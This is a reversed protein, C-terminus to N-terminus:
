KDGHHWGAPTNTGQAQAARVGRPLLTRLVLCSLYRCTLIARGPIHRYICGALRDVRYDVAQDHASVHCKDFQLAQADGLRFKLLERLLRAGTARKSLSAYTSRGIRNHPSIACPARRCLIRLSARSAKAAAAARRHGQVQSGTLLNPSRGGSAGECSGPVSASPFLPNAQPYSEALSGQGRALHRM